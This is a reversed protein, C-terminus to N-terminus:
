PRESVPPLGPLLGARAIPAGVGIRLIQPNAVSRFAVAFGTRSGKEAGTRFHNWAEKSAGVGAWSSPQGFIAAPELVNIQAGVPEPFVSAAKRHPISRRDRSGSRRPCPVRM